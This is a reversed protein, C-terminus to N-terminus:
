RKPMAPLMTTSAQMRTGIAAYTPRAPSRYEGSFWKMESSPSTPTERSAETNSMPSAAAPM